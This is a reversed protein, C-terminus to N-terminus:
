DFSNFTVLRRSPPWHHAPKFKLGPPELARTTFTKGPKFDLKALRNSTWDNHAKTAVKTQSEEHRASEDMNMLGQHPVFYKYDAPKMSNECSGVLRCRASPSDKVVNREEKARTNPNGESDIFM